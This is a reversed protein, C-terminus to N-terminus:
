LRYSLMMILRATIKGPNEYRHPRNAKFRICHDAEGDYHHDEITVRVRGGHIFLFEEVNGEHPEGDFSVGPDIQVHYLEFSHGPDFPIMPYVRYGGKRATLPKGDTFSMIAVDPQQKSLLATFSLRLGNAIKWITSITPSSKGTEIQRLMSKSVGTMEALQDLSLSRRERIEKLNRSVAYEDHKM